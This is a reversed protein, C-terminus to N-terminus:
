HRTVTLTYSGDLTSVRDLVLFYRGPTLTLSLETYRDSSPGANIRNCALQMSADLCDGTRVAITPVYEGKATMEYTGAETVNLAYVHEDGPTTTTNVPCMPLSEIRSTGSGLRSSATVREGITTPAMLTAHLALACTGVSGSDPPAADPTSADENPATADSAADSASADEHPVSADSAADSAAADEHPAVADEAAADEAADPTSADDSAPVDHNADAGTADAAHDSPVDTLSADNGADVLPDSSCAGIAVISATLLWTRLANKQM